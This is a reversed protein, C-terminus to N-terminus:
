LDISKGPKLQILEMGTLGSSGLFNQDMKEGFESNLADHISIIRSPKVANVFDAAEGTKMWPGTTPLLLVDIREEPVDFSDGPHYVTGDIIYGVNEVTPISAHIEAHQGSGVVKIPVSGINFEDGQAVTVVRGGFSGLSSSVSAPGYVKLDDNESLAKEVAKSDLHDMHNHTILVANAGNIVREVKHDFEGPDIVIKVGDTELEVCSQMHKTLKM